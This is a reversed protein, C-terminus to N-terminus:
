ETNVNFYEHVSYSHTYLYNKLASKFQKPNNDYLNKTSHPLINFAKIGTSYVGKKHLSLNTSPEYFNYKQITSINYVGSNLKLTNKNNVVILLLSLRYQSQLPLIKLNTFLDRCSERHRWGTIIRITNKQIKFITATHSSNEWFILEYYVIKLTEHSM